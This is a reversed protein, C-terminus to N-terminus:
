FIIFNNISGMRRMLDCTSALLFVSAASLVGMALQLGVVHPNLPLLYIRIYTAFCVMNCVVLAIPQDLTPHWTRFIQGKLVISGM